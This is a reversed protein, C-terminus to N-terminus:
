TSKRFAHFVVSFKGVILNPETERSLMRWTGEEEMRRMTPELERLAEVETLYYETMSNLFLGGPRVVRCIERLSDVPMHAQAYGGSAVVVDYEGDAVGTIRHGGGVLSCIARGYIGRRGLEDLMPQSM